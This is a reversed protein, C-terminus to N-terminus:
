RGRGADGGRGGARVRSAARPRAADGAMAIREGNTLRVASPAAPPARGAESRGGADFPDPRGAATVRVVPRRNSMRGMMGARERGAIGGGNNQRGEDRGRGYAMSLFLEATVRAARPGEPSHARGGSACVSRSSARHRRRRPCVMSMGGRIEVVGRELVGGRAGGANDGLCHPLPAGRGGSCSSTASVPLSCFHNPCGM